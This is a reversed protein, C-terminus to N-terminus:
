CSILMVILNDSVQSILHAIWPVLAERLPVIVSLLHISILESILTDDEEASTIVMDSSSLLGIAQVRCETASTESLALDILSPAIEESVSGERTTAELYDLTEKQISLFPSVLGTTILTTSSPDYLLVLSFCATIFNEASPLHSTSTWSRSAELEQHATKYLRASLRLTAAAFVRAIHM